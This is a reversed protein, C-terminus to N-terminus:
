SPLRRAKDNLDGNENQKKMHFKVSARHGHHRSRAPKNGIMSIVALKTEM